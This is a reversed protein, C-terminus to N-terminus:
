ARARTVRRERDELRANLETVLPQIESPYEGDVHNSQGNRVSALRARLQNLPSLGRGLQVLGGAVFTVAAISILVTHAAVHWRPHSHVITMVVVTAVTVVGLTWLLSGVILHSRLSRLAM